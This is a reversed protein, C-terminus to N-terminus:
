KAKVVNERLFHLAKEYDFDFKKLAKYSILLGTPCEKSLKRIVTLKDNM